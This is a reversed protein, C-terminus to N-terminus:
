TIILARNWKLRFSRCLDQWGKATCESRSKKSCRFRLGAVPKKQDSPVQIRGRLLDEISLDARLGKLEELVNGVVAPGLPVKNKRRAAVQLPRQEAGRVRDWSIFGNAAM